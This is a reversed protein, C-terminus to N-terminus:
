REDRRSRSRYAGAHGAVAEAYVARTAAAADRWTWAAAAARMEAELRDRRDPAGLVDLLASALASPDDPPVLRGGGAELAEPLGGVATAVVARGYGRAAALVASDDTARYPLAVVDSAAFYGAVQDTPIYGPRLEVAGAIGLRALEGQIRRVAPDGGAVPGAVILRGEPLAARVHPWAELLLDLGKYPRLHGFFLALPVDLPLDLVARAADRNPPEPLVTSSGAPVALAPMPVVHVRARDPGGLGLLRERAAASHVILRDAAQYLRRALAAHWPRAEHPLVNHATFVTAIGMRGLGALARADLVPALSWQCHVVAPRERHMRRLFAAM